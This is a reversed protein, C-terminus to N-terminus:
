CRVEMQLGKDSEQRKLAIIDKSEQAQKDLATKAKEYDSQIQTQHQAQQEALRQRALQFETLM